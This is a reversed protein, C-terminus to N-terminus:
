DAGNGTEPEQSEDKPATSMGLPLYAPCWKFTATTLFVLGILGWWSQFWLGAGIIAIGAIFRFARDAGGVNCTM